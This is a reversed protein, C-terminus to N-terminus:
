FSRFDWEFMVTSRADSMQYVLGIIHMNTGPSCCSICSIKVLSQEDPVWFMFSIMAM